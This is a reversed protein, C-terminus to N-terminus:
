QIRQLTVTTLPSAGSTRNYSLWYGAKPYRVLKYMSGDAKATIESGFVQKATLVDTGSSLFDASIAVVKLDKDYVVQATETESFVFFDQETGKDKPEGLKQRVDSATMGLQIGRYANFVGSPEDGAASSPGGSVKRPAQANADSLAVLVFALAILFTFLRSPSSGSFVTRIM